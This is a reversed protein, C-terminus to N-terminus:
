FIERREGLRSLSIKGDKENLPLTTGM